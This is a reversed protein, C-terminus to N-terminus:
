GQSNTVQLGDYIEPGSIHVYGAAFLGTTVPIMRHPLRAQQVAYGGGPTALLATVPVSLVRKAVAQAFNVSVPAQDLGARSIHGKPKITVPITAQASSSSDPPSPSGSSSNAAVPSVGTIVGNVTNGAPMEVTVNEGVKAEPQKSADLDVTVILQRSTTQLMPTAGAGGGASSVPPSSGTTSPGAPGGGGTSGLSAEVASVIRDGPLFVVQGLSVSGTETEQLSAQLAEVGATTAPQWDDDIVIGDPDFRLKVLNRNLQLIDKGHSDSASLDRYAPTTGNMLIVPQGDVEYLPQGPTILQGISPLRTVTGSLRDYVTQPNAYSITGSETDTEVLDRRTVMATGTVPVGGSRKTSSSRTSLLVGVVLAVVVLLLLVVVASRSPGRGGLGRPLHSLSRLPEEGAPPTAVSAAADGPDGDGAGMRTPGDSGTASEPSVDTRHDTTSM